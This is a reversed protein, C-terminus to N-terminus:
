WYGRYFVLVAPGQATLAALTTTKGTADPLAFDAATGGKVQGPGRTAIARHVLVYGLVALVTVLGVFGIGTRRLRKRTRPTM